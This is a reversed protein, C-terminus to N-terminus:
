LVVLALFFGVIKNSNMKSSARGSKVSKIIKADRNEQGCVMQTSSQQALLCLSVSRFNLEIWKVGDLISQGLTLDSNKIVSFVPAFKCGSPHFTDVSPAYFQPEIKSPTESLHNFGLWGQTVCDLKLTVRQSLDSKLFRRWIVNFICLMFDPRYPQGGKIFRHAFIWNNISRISNYTQSM